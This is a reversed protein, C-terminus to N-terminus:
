LVCKVEVPKLHWEASDFADRFGVKWIRYLDGRGDVIEDGIEFGITKGKPSSIVWGEGKVFCASLSVSYRKGSKSLSSEIVPDVPSDVRKVADAVKVPCYDCVEVCVNVVGGGQKGPLVSFLEHVHGCLVVSGRPFVVADGPDHIMYVNESYQYWAVVNEFGMDILDPVKIRDHNGLVLWKRGHMRALIRRISDGREAGWLTFDGLIFLRDDNEVRDNINEILVKEMHRIDKFPRDCYGIIRDHGFHFDATVWDTM